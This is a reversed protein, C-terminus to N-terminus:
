QVVKYVTEGCDLCKWEYVKRADRIWFIVWFGTLLTLVLHPWHKIRPRYVPVEKLCKGCYGTREEFRVFRM